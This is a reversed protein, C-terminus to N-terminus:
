EKSYPTYPLRKEILKNYYQVEDVSLGSKLYSPMAYAMNWLRENYGAVSRAYHVSAKTYM